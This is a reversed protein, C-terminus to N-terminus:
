LWDSGILAFSFAAGGRITGATRPKAKSPPTVFQLKNTGDISAGSRRGMRPGVDVISIMCDVVSVYIAWFSDVCPLIM